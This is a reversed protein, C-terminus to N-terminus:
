NGTLTPSNRGSELDWINICYKYSYVGNRQSFRNRKKWSIFKTVHTFIKKYVNVISFLHIIGYLLDYRYCSQNWLTKMTINKCTLLHITEIVLSRLQPLTKVLVFLKTNFLESFVDGGQVKSGWQLHKWSNLVMSNNM